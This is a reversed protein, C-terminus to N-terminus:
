KGEGCSALEVNGKISAGDEIVISRTYIDGFVEASRALHM